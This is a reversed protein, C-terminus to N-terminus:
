EEPPPLTITRFRENVGEAVYLIHTRWDVRLGRPQNFMAETAPGGDGSFGAEGTGAITTIVGTRADVRRIQHGPADAVYLNGFADFAIAHPSFVSAGTAPGGDGSAAAEGNGVVTTIIGTVADIRRVRRNGADCFLYNGAPDFDGNAPFSVQADVAPGDDGSFAATGDGAITDIKGTAADIRRIRHNNFDAIFINGGGDIAIGHPRAIEAEIAPGGDGSFGEAGGGTVTRIIGTHAEIKRLRNSNLEVFHLSGAADRALERPRALRANVAPGGDGDDESDGNGEVGTGAITTIIGTEGDIRRIRHNRHNRVDTVYVNSLGDIVIGGPLHFSAELAPGGDGSFGQTGNGAFTQVIGYVPPEETEIM